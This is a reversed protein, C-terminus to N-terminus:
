TGFVFLLFLLCMRDCVPWGTLHKFISTDKWILFTWFIKFKRWVSCVKWSPKGTKNWMSKDAESLNVCIVTLVLRGENADLSNWCPWRSEEWGLAPGNISYNNLFYSNFSHFFSRGRLSKFNRLWDGDLQEPILSAIFSMGGEFMCASSNSISQKRWLCFIIYDPVGIESLGVQCSLRCAVNM